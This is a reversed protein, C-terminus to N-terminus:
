WDKEVRRERYSPIMAKGPQDRLRNLVNAARQREAEDAETPESEPQAESGEAAEQEGTQEEGQQPEPAAGAEPDDQQQQSGSTQDANERDEPPDGSAAEPQEPENQEGEPSEGGDQQPERNEEGEDGSEGSDEQGQPQPQQELQRRVFELNLQADEDDPDAELSAQYHKVAEDMRGLRYAANGMNYLVRSRLEPTARALAAAYSRLAQEYDGAQYQTNGINYAIEPAEPAELQAKAFAELAGEFDGSDYAEIGEQVRSSPNDARAPGAGVVGIVAPLLLLALSRKRLPLVLAAFLAAVAAGLPWQYRDEWVKVKGEELTKAEMQGRIQDRYILDLDMDGTVSRTYAGGTVAALRQLTEEELRALVINGREDKIFGGGEQPVPAGGQSGVGIVFVRVGHQRAREAAALPDGRTSEGDTILIVAKEAPSEPDFGELATEIADALSTGGVPLFDPSLAQLFLHFGAYDLTLPCQLFATGAFAVLGIRDGELRNLLDVMERKARELRNPKLDEALMSRSCDLAVLLDVGRREVNRWRYGYLPGAVALSLFLLSASVLAARLWRRTDSRGAAIRELAKSTAYEGLGGSRRLHGLAYLALALPVSWVFFLWLPHAFTV